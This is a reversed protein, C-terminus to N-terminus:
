NKASEHHRHKRKDHAVIANECTWEFISLCSILTAVVGGGHPQGPLKRCVSICHRLGNNSRHILFSLADGRVILFSVVAVIASALVAGRGSM